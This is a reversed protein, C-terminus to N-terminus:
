PVEALTVARGVQKTAHERAARRDVQYTERSAGRSRADPSAGSVKASTGQGALEVRVGSGFGLIWGRLEPTDAIKLTM